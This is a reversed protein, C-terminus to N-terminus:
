VLKYILSEGAAFKNINVVKRGCKCIGGAFVCEAAAAAFPSCNWVNEQTGAGVGVSDSRGGVVRALNTRGDM